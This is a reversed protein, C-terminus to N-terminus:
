TGLLFKREVVGGGRGAECLVKIGHSLREASANCKMYPIMNEITSEERVSNQPHRLNITELESQLVFDEIRDFHTIM